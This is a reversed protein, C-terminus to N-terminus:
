RSATGRILQLFEGRTRADQKFTGLMCSTVAQSTQKQVGRMMMCLHYAEMVVAVGKPQLAQDIAAAIQTTLNEQVQLRRSYIDVVRGLKSLGAIRGDPIYALHCRGYMPLLHHECLSYFELDRVVVMEDADSEFVAGRLVAVPDSAYGETLFQLSRAVREPTDRLGPRDPNEGLEPLMERVLAELTEFPPRSPEISRSM